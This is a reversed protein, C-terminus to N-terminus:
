KHWKLRCKGTLFYVMGDLEFSGLGLSNLGLQLKIPEVVKMKVFEVKQEPSLADVMPTFAAQFRSEIEGLLYAHIRQASPYLIFKNLKKSFREKAREAYDLQCEIGGLKLKGELGIVVDEQTTYDLIEDTRGDTKTEKELEVSFKAHLSDLYGDSRIEYNVVFTPKYINNAAIDGGGSDNDSITVRQAKGDSM